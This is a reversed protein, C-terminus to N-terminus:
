GVFNNRSCGFIKDWFSKIEFVITIYYQMYAICDLGQHQKGHKSFFELCVYHIKYRHMDYFSIFFQECDEFVAM